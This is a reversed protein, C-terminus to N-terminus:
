EYGFTPCDAPMSHADQWGCAACHSLQPWSHPSRVETVSLCNPESGQECSIAHSVLLKGRRDAYLIWTYDHESLAGYVHGRESMYKYCQALCLSKTGSLGAGALRQIVPLRICQRQHHMLAHAMNIAEHLQGLNLLCSEALSPNGALKAIGIAAM